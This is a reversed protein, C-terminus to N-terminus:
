DLYDIPQDYYIVTTVDEFNAKNEICDYYPRLVEKNKHTSTLYHSKANEFYFLIHIKLQKLTSERDGSFSSFIEKLKELLAEDARILKVAKQTALLVKFDTTAIIDLYHLIALQDLNVGEKIIKAIDFTPFLNHKSALDFITEIMGKFHTLCILTDKGYALYSIRLVQYFDPRAQVLKFAETDRYSEIIEM